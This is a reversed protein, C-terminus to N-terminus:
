LNASQHPHPAAHLRRRPPRCVLGPRHAVAPMAPAGAAGPEEPPHRDEGNDQQEGADAARHRQHPRDGAPEPDDAHRRRGARQDDDAARHEARQGGRRQNQRAPHTQEAPREAGHHVRRRANGVAVVRHASARANL